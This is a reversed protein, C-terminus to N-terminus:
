FCTMELYLTFEASAIQSYIVDEDITDFWRRSDAMNKAAAIAQMKDAPYNEIFDYM